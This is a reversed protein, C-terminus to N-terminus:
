RFSNCTQYVTFYRNTNKYDIAIDVEPLDGFISYLMEENDLMQLRIKAQRQLVRYNLGALKALNEFIIIRIDDVSTVPQFFISFCDLTTQHLNLL